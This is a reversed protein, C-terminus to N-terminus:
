CLVCHKLNTNVVTVSYLFYKLRQRWVGHLTIFCAPFDQWTTENTEEALFSIIIKKHGM